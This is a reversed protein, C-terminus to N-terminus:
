SGDGIGRLLFTTVLLLLKELTGCMGTVLLPLQGGRLLQRAAIHRHQHGNKLRPHIPIKHLSKSASYYAAAPSERCASFADAAFSDPRANIENKWVPPYVPVTM